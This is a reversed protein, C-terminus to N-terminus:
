KQFIENYKAIMDKGNAALDEWDIPLAKAALETSSLMGEKLQVDPSSVTINMNVMIKQGGEPDLIFDLLLKGLEEQPCGKVVAIPCPVAVIDETDRWGIPSGQDMLNKVNYDVGLCVKYGGSAVANNTANSSENVETGYTVVDQIESTPSVVGDTWTILARRKNGLSKTATVTVDNKPATSASITLKNGNKSFSLGSATFDYKSLVGNSDTLTTTYKSGDWVLEVTQASNQSSKVFSPMTRHTKVSAEISNYYAFIKSRLPHNSAIIDTVKNYGSPVTVHNFSEDREGIL